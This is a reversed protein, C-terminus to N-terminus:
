FCFTRILFAAKRNVMVMMHSLFIFSQAKFKQLLPSVLIVRCAVSECGLRFSAFLCVFRGTLDFSSYIFCICVQLGTLAVLPASFNM